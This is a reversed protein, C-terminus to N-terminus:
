EAGLEDLGPASTAEVLVLEVEPSVEEEEEKSLENLREDEFPVDILLFPRENTPSTGSITASAFSNGPAGIRRLVTWTTVKGIGLDNRCAQWGPVGKYDRLHIGGHILRGGFTYNNIARSEVITGSKRPSRPHNQKLLLGPNMVAMSFFDFTFCQFYSKRKIRRSDPQPFTGSQFSPSGTLFGKPSVVPGTVELEVYPLVILRPGDGLKHSLCYFEHLARLPPVTLRTISFRQILERRQLKKSVVEEKGRRAKQDNLIKRITNTTGISTLKKNPESKGKIKYLVLSPSTSPRQSRPHSEPALPLRHQAGDPLASAVCALFNYNLVKNAGKRTIWPKSYESLRCAGVFQPDDQRSQLMRREVHPPPSFRITERM